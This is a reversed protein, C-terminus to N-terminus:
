SSPLTTPGPGPHAILPKKRRRFLPTELLRRYGGWFAYAVFAVIAGSTDAIWDAFEVSRGPTFSQHIEDSIGFLSVIVVAWFWHRSKLPRLVLTAMLGFISFHAIKDFSVVPPAAVASRGSALVVVTALVVAYTWQWPSPTKSPTM